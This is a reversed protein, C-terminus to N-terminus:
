VKHGGKKSVDSVLTPEYWPGYFTSLRKCTFRGNDTELLISKTKVRLSETM